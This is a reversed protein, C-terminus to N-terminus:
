KRPKIVEQLVRDIKQNLEKVDIKVDRIDQKIETRSEKEAAERKIENQKINAIEVKNDRVDAITQTYIGIGSGIFVLSALINGLSVVPFFRKRKEVHDKYDM